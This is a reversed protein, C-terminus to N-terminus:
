RQGDRTCDVAPSQGMLLVTSEGPLPQEFVSYRVRALANGTGVVEGAPDCRVCVHEGLLRRCGFREKRVALWRRSAGDDFLRCEGIRKLRESFVAWALTEVLPGNGFLETRPESVFGRKGRRVEAIVPGLPHSRKRGLIATIRDVRQRRVRLSDGRQLNQAQQIAEVDRRPAVASGVVIVM